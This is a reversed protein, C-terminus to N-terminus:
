EFLVLLVILLASDFDAFFKVHFKTSVWWGGVWLTDRIIQNPGLYRPFSKILLIKSM